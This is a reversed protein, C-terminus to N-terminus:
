KAEPDVWQHINVLAFDRPEGDKKAPDFAEIFWQVDEHFMSKKFSLASPEIVRVGRVGRWNTYDITVKRGHVKPKYIKFVCSWVLSAALFGFFFDM